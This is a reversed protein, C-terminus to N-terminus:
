VMRMYDDTDPLKGSLVPSVGAALTLAIMFACMASIVAAQHALLSRRPAPHAIGVGVQLEGVIPGVRNVTQIARFGLKGPVPRWRSLPGCGVWRAVGLWGATRGHNSLSRLGPLNCAGDGRPYRVSGPNPDVRGRARGVGGALGARTPDLRGASRRCDLNRLLAQCRDRRWDAQLELD